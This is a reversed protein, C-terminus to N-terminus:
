DKCNDFDLHGIRNGNTDYVLWQAGEGNVLYEIRDACHHLIRAIEDGPCDDFAANDTSFELKFM